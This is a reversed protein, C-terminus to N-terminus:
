ENIMYPKLAKKPVIKLDSLIGGIINNGNM